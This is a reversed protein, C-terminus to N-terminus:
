GWVLDDPNVNTLKRTECNLIEVLNEKPKVCIIVGDVFEILLVILLVLLATLLTGAIFGGISGSGPNWFHWWKVGNQVAYKEPEESM